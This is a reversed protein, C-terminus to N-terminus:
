AKRVPALWDGHTKELARCRKEATGRQRGPLTGRALGIQLRIFEARESAGNEDLWDAYVLRPTDEDPHSMIAALLAAEDSM